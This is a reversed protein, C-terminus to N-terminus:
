EAAKLETFYAALAAIEENNLSGAIQQMVPNDRHKDRYSFMVTVFAETPWGTITPIGKDSGDVQHCTVCTQSLYEGWDRDGVIALVEAPLEPDREQVHPIAGENDSGASYSSLFAIVDARDQDRKLGSFSMKTKPIFSKPRTLFADLTEESWLLGGDGAEIMAKSYSYDVFGAVPRGILDNLPPGNKKRAGPGIEHCATCKRWIKAGKEADGEAAASIAPFLLFATVLAITSRMM